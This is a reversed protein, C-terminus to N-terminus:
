KLIKDIINMVDKILSKLKNDAADNSDEEVGFYIKIKPETGSPRVCFWSKDSLTFYLVNSKPLNTNSVSNDVLNKIEGLKYDRIEIVEAGNVNSPSSTRLYTMIKDMDKLGDIGKLTISKIDEKFYGYKKYVEQLGEYLTMDKTKYFAALECILMTAVVADKDRAYTGALCGYSEEFGFIYENCNTQEFQKIKEGIFKFGTLVNFYDINYNKAIKETMNSSVVTSIIAGKKSLTGGQQRQSLIYETLLVGIMNGSLIVYEGNNNKVVTGVRDADPDTGVIIDADIEDALKLALKFANPDEPNPYSVTSFNCDPLEQEKVINVNKFGAKELIRRVPKNGTGHIPTYVIKLDSAKEIVEKNLLQKLVNEDYKEDIEKGIINFLGEKIAKDKDLKKITKFDKVNNVYAIIETDKPFPVQGGDEGYIKYGNYEPPNHSATIVVGAICGLERIAFSVMPTPRLEDFLYTKIGNGNLVLATIEAFEQSMFRSDYGIAVGKEKTYEKQDLIYDALGQTAKSITYINVRNTGAGIIGRLGGTGFELDKYFRDEIEKEDDKINILEEKTKVDFYDDNLWNEYLHKYNM